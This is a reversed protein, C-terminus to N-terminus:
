SKTGRPRACPRIRPRTSRRPSSGAGLRRGPRIPRERPSLSGFASSRMCAFGTQSTNTAYNLPAFTTMTADVIALGGSSHWGGYQEIPEANNANAWADFVQDVHSREGFFMTNSTGDTVNAFTLPSQNAVPASMAGAEFFMGNAIQPVVSNCYNYFRYCTGGTGGNGGYSGIGFSYVSGVQTAPNQAIIDSPCITAQVVTASLGSIEDQLPDGTTLQNYLNGQEMSNFLFIFLNPGRMGRPNTYM